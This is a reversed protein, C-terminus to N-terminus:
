RRPDNDDECEKPNEVGLRCITERVGTPAANFIQQCHECFIDMCRQNEPNKFLTVKLM